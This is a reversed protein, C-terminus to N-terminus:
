DVFAARASDFVRASGDDYEVLWLRYDVAFAPEDLAFPDDAGDAGAATGADVDEDDGEGELEPSGLFLREAEAAAAERAAQREAAQQARAAEAAEVRAAAAAQGAVQQEEYAAPTPMLVRRVGEGLTGANRADRLASLLAACAPDIGSATDLHLGAVLEGDQLEIEIWDFFLETAHLDRQRRNFVLMNNGVKHFENAFWRELVDNWLRDAEDGAHLYPRGGMKVLFRAINELAGESAPHTRVLASGVHAYCRSIELRLEESDLREDIDLILTLSPRPQAM